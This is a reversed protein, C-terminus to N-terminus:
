PASEMIMTIPGDNVLSVKMNAGFRGRAVSLGEAELAAEFVALLRRGDDPAAARGFDPRNGKRWRGALTFQSVVLVAGGMDKIARNLKGAEDTFIRMAAVKHAFFRAEDETDDREACFLVLLGPGIAGVTEGEVDVRAEAVRQLVAKM